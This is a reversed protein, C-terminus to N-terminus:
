RRLRMTSSPVRGVRTAMPPPRAGVAPGAEHADVGDVLAVEVAVLADVQDVDDVLDGLELVDAGDRGDGLAEQDRDEFAEEPQEGEGDEAEVGVVAALVDVVPDGRQEGLQVGLEGLGAGPM